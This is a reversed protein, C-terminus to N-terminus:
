PNLIWYREEEPLHEAVDVRRGRVTLHPVQSAYVAIRAAKSRIDVQVVVREAFLGRSRTIRRVEGEAAEGWLYPLEEYLVAQADLSAVADLAADRLFLHDPHRLPVRTGVRRRVTTIVGPNRGAGAPVAVVGGSNQELWRSTAAAIPKADNRARRGTLYEAEVLDLFGLRHPTDAFASHEEARRVRRSEASDVFGTVRDWDGQRPPAPNGAFVTLLDIPKERAILAACSLVADDFHASLLLLPADRLVAPLGTLVRFAVLSGHGLPRSGSTAV